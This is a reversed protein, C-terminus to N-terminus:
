EESFEFDSFDELLPTPHRKLKGGQDKRGRKGKDGKDGAM